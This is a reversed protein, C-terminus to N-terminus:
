VRNRAQASVALGMLLVAMIITAWEPLTPIDNDSVCSPAKLTTATGTIEVRLGTATYPGVSSPNNHVKFVLTNVGPNFTVSTTQGPGFSFPSWDFTNVPTTFTGVQTGNLFIAVGSNDTAWQGTIVATTADYGSLDFTTQYEYDGNLGAQAPSTSGSASQDAQPAIWKSGTGSAIWAANGNTIIGPQNPPFTTDPNVTITYHPDSSGAPLPLSNADVGTNYLGFLPVEVPLRFILYEGHNFGPAFPAPSSGNGSNWWMWRAGGAIGPVVVDHIGGQSNTLASATIPKWGGSHNTGANAFLIQETLEATTPATSGISLNFNTATVEWRSNGSLVTVYNGFCNNRSYDVLLGQKAADDSWAAIYIWDADPATKSYSEPVFIESSTANSAGGINQTASVSTGLYFAYDNDATVVISLSDAKAQAQNAGLLVGVYIFLGALFWRNMDM